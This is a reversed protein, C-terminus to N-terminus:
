LHPSQARSSPRGGSPSFLGSAWLVQLLDRQLGIGVGPGSLSNRELWPQLPESGCAPGSYLCRAHRDRHGRHKQRGAKAEANGEGAKGRGTEPETDTVRCRDGRDM